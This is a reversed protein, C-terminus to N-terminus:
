RGSGPSQRRRDSCYGGHNPRALKYVLSAGRGPVLAAGSGSQELQSVRGWRKLLWWSSAHVGPDPDDRHVAELEILFNPFDIGHLESPSYEGLAQLLARRITVDPEVALRRALAAPPVRSAALWHILETRPQPLATHELLRWAQDPVPERASGIMAAAVRLRAGAGLAPDELAASLSAHFGSWHEALLTRIVAHMEPPAVLM